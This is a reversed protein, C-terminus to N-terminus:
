LIQDSVGELVSHAQETDLWLGPEGIFQHKEGDRDNEQINMEHKMGMLTALAIHMPDVILIRDAHANELGHHTVVMFEGFSTRVGDVAMGLINADQGIRLFELGLSDLQQRADRGCFWIKKTGGYRTSQNVIWGIDGFGLGGEADMRNTVVFEDFGGSYRTIEGGTVEMRKKGWIIMEEMDRKYAQLALTRESSLDAPGRKKTQKNTRSIGYPRKLIQTFNTITKYDTTVPTGSLGHETQKEFLIKLWTDAAAAAATTGVAGRVVVMDTANTISSVEVREGTDTVLVIDGPRFPATDDCVLTTAVNTFATGIKAWRSPHEREFLKFEPDSTSKSALRTLLQTFMTRDPDLWMIQERWSGPRRDQNGTETQLIGHLHTPGFTSISLILTLLLKFPNM